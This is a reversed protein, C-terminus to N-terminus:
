LKFYSKSSRQVQINNGDLNHRRRGEVRSITATQGGIVDITGSSKRLFFFVYLRSKGHSYVVDLDHKLFTPSMQWSSVSSNSASVSTSKGCFSLGVYLKGVKLVM